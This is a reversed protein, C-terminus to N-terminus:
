GLNERYVTDDTKYARMAMADFDRVASDDDSKENLLAKVLEEDRLMDSERIKGGAANVAAELALRSERGKRIADVISANGAIANDTLTSIADASVIPQQAREEIGPLTEANFSGMIKLAHENANKMSEATSSAGRLTDAYGIQVISQKMVPITYTHVMSLNRVVSASTHLLNRVQSNTVRAVALRSMYNAHQQEIANSVEAIRGLQDHLEAYEPSEPDTVAIRREMARASNMAAIHISELAAIVGVMKDMSERNAILLQRAYSASQKLEERKGIVKGDITDMRRVLNQRDYALDEFGRKRSRFWSLIKGKRKNEANVEDKYKATYGDLDRNAQELLSDVEPIRIKKQVELLQDVVSNVSDVSSRGFEVIKDDSELFSTFTKEAQLDLADRTSKDLANYFAMSMGTASSVPGPVTDLRGKNVVVSDVNDESNVSDDTKDVSNDVDDDVASSAIIADRAASDADASMISDIDTADLHIGDSTANEDLSQGAVQSAVAGNESM